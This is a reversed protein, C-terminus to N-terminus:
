KKQCKRPFRLQKRLLNQNKRKLFKTKMLTSNLRKIKQQNTTTKKTVSILIMSNMLGNRRNNQILHQRKLWKLSELRIRRKIRRLNLSPKQNKRKSTTIRVLWIKTQFSKILIDKKRRNLQQPILLQKKRGKLNPYHSKRIIMLNFVWKKRKTNKNSNIRSTTLM